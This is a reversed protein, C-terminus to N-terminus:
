PKGHSKQKTIKPQGIGNVDVLLCVMRGASTGDARLCPVMLGGCASLCQSFCNLLVGGNNKASSSSAASVAFGLRSCCCILNYAIYFPTLNIVASTALGIFTYVSAQANRYAKIAKLINM